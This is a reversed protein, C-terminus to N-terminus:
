RRTARKMMPDRASRRRVSDQRIGQPHNYRDFLEPWVRGNVKQTLHRRPSTMLIWQNTPVSDGISLSLIDSPTLGHVSGRSTAERCSSEQCTAISRRWLSFSTSSMHMESQGPCSCWWSLRFFFDRGSAAGSQLPGRRRGRRRSGFLHTVWWRLALLRQLYVPM